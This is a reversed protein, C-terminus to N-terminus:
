RFDRSRMRTGKANAAAAEDLYRLFGNLNFLSEAIFHVVSQSRQVRGVVGLIQSRLLAERYTETLKPWIIVNLSHIDDELTLFVTGSATGPRQRMTVLGALRLRTGDRVDHAMACSQWGAAQLPPALMTVPHAKLSLGLSRYDAAVEEGGSAQPLQVDPETGAVNNHRRSAHAFLPMDNMRQRGLVRVQWQAQRRDLGMSAFGDAAAIANLANASVDARRMIEALSAFAPSQGSEPQGAMHRSAAIREGEGRALGKILRLGLRLAHHGRRNQPDTELTSDWASYSVDVPLIKVGSRKAEAILQAPAYFGMPQANLLACIFVDPYHCKIWASVYVLLAFSAAHSEPFGYTGFGEIQKFCRLAFEADYGRATMGKIMKERFRSVDGHKKFTAMARRLQDAENGTFGAGVIAIQMAQEQFLPVGLTRELVARLAKSPYSVKELGARRRLYPHVMDGQIPGPRVIAVQVVLDHFCRPQLRPLMAMQARSEVQFVGVSRGACLMDYTASDEPPVSALTLPRNYHLRLLDFARRVCSLMGLALVDVKLLGLADLDDKDWEIVTRGEMAAPSIPCLHDLRGRTIVFGGVHQSLHRPFRSIDSVLRMVLGLRRDAPDLGAAQLAAGDLPQKERGWVEGSLAAQVDRSLGFVKAVERLASRRRYTIVSAALGARMRGYKAYIHQIVEERREHEFDVDIDPPEGRAESIFREFLPQSRDPDVATIGLCYCVASNAASGRGQCLIGRGRAFRVMDFVTLFYPAFGLKAILALERVLYAEVKDPIGDPYRDRAGNWTQYELEQMANRSGPSVENPYEYSLDAMSFRCQSALQAAAAMADPWHRWRRMAEDPSILHREANRSLLHGARDLLQKERICTLVDALPRREAAHYLADAVATLRLGTKHAMEALLDMRAEDAGDRYLAAGAYLPGKVLQKIQGLQAQYDLQPHLPPMVLVAVGTSLRALDAVYLVPAAKSGRMNAESLLVSLSEYGARDLPHAILDPGDVPRLRAGVVLRIGHDRAAIHARVIGALSNVDAIGIAQWGLAAASAVMESPHSAGTLFTFNSYCGLVASSIAVNDSPPTM